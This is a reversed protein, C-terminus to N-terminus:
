LELIIILLLDALTINESILDFPSLNYVYM